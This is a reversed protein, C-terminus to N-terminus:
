IQEGPTKRGPRGLNFERYHDVGSRPIVWVPGIKYAGPFRGRRCQTALTRTDLGLEAGVETLTLLQEPQATRPM